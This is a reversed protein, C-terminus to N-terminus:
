AIKRIAVITINADSGLGTSNLQGYKANNIIISGESIIITCRVWFTNANNQVIESVNVSNTTNLITTVHMWQSSVSNDKLIISYLGGTLGSNQVTEGIDAIRGSMSGYAQDITDMNNNIDGISVNESGAPKKLNLNTTYSAM